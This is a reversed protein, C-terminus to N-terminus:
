GNVAAPMRKRLKEVLTTRNLGLIRAAQNKNGATQMLAQRIMSDELQQLAERLDIGESPLTMSLLGQADVVAATALEREQARFPLHELEVRQGRRLIVLREIVNHLQRVNGPWHHACLAERVEPGLQPAPM